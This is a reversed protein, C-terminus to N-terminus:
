NYCMRVTDYQEGTIKEGHKDFIDWKGNACAPILNDYLMYQSKASDTVFDESNIGIVDYEIHIVLQENSDIVGFKSNSEVLYYGLTSNFVKIDDYKVSIKTEGTSYTIGVKESSNTIIFEKPGELFEINNYRPGIIEEKTNINVVGFKNTSNKSAVIMGYILAKQNNFDDSLKDYGYKQINEKYYSVLYSLTQIQFKNTEKDYYFASNFAQMFGESDIYWKNDIKTVPVTIEVHEYDEISNPPTKNIQNSNLYFSTTETGDKAEVYMKTTDETNIKYEGNHAEYGVLPAIDKISIYIHGTTWSVSHIKQLHNEREM